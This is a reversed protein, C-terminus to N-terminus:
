YKFNRTSRHNGNSESLGALQEKCAEQINKQSREEFIQIQNVMIRSLKGMMEENKSKLPKKEVKRQSSHKLQWKKAKRNRFINYSKKM